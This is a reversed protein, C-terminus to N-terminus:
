ALQLTEKSDYVVPPDHRELLVKGNYLSQQKQQAQKLYFPNQYGLAMKQETHYFSDPKPSLMHITQIWQGTKILINDLEKIKNELQIQKDLLEDERIKFDSRLRKKEELLSSVTSKEKSLEASGNSDYFSAKDSQTSSTSEKLREIEEYADTAAMFEFEDQISQIGVEKEQAITCNSAYHGEGRYNYCRILNGNIGNGNGKAPALVVDGNRYNPRFQNRVNDEVMIMQRDQDMNMGPQVIQMNSPNSSSRQNNNTPTTDNLTFAKAMLALAMDFATISDLIDKPNQMPQQMYNTNFSPQPFFNNNSQPHKLVLLRVCLSPNQSLIPPQIFVVFKELSRMIRGTKLQKDIAQIMAAAREKDSKRWIADNLTGDSFKHLEDIRMLRNQKDKNQYIFGRPNSYATYAEKRKLDSHYTDPKTRIGKLRDDLATRVDNLTGNSFKHLEDIRMLRNQKDKNQYIFGRPNSYATYAEKRKLDSHYTDPKTLNLKKQYSEVGLKKSSTYSTMTELCQSRIWISTIIGSSLITRPVLDEIWKIHGYDAAKTKTVFTVCKRSSAGGRLYELDNNIFHDFPIVHYGQSNPILPLPKLLNHLYQHGELNNWDLQDTTAKYVEELFFELEGLSKCSGKMLKYTLGALLELTLTDVKLRNMLFPDPTPPKKQQPFWKPHQSAEVIPQDDAVGTKFEQHSPEELDQTTQM